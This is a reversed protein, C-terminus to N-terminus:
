PEGEEPDARTIRRLTLVPDLGAGSQSPLGRPPAATEARTKMLPLRDRKEAIFEALFDRLAPGVDATSDRQGSLARALPLSVMHRKRSAETRRAYDRRWDILSQVFSSDSLALLRGVQWASAYAHNFMGYDPDYHIAHDSFYFPGYDNIVQTPQPVLPGRYLATAVEGDRLDNQLPVYGIALAETAWPDAGEPPPPLRMLDVGGRGPLCLEEMLQLFGGPTPDARFSWMGLLALRIRRIGAPIAAGGPLHDQHGEFSVLLVTNQGGQQVVRNGTVVSFAGDDNMGLVIKDDTNVVRAHALYELDGLTPAIARFFDIDMDLALVSDGESPLVTGLKPPLIDSQTPTVFEAVKITDPWTLRPAKPGTKGPPAPMEPEAITLLGLWPHPDDTTGDPDIGRMWPLAFESLVMAPLVGGFSGAHDAPPFVQHIASPNIRFRPAAVEFAQTATFPDTPGDVLGEVSQSAEILHSGAKFPPAIRDYFRIQGPGVTAPASIIPDSM